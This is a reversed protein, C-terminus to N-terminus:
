RKVSQLYDRVAQEAIRSPVVRSLTEPTAAFRYEKEYAASGVSVRADPKAPRHLPAVRLAFVLPTDPKSVDSFVSVFALRHCGAQAARALVADANKGPDSSEVSFFAQEVKGESMFATLAADYFSFNLRNWRENAEPDTASLNRGGGAVVTCGSPLEPDAAACPLSALLCAALLLRHLHMAFLRFAARRRKAASSNRSNGYWCSPLKRRWTTAPDHVAAICDAYAEDGM